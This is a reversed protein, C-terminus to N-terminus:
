RLYTTQLILQTNGKLGTVQINGTATFIRCIVPYLTGDSMKGIGTFTLDNKPKVDDPLKFITVGASVDGGSAVINVTVTNVCKKILCDREINWNNLLEEIKTTITTEYIPQKFKPEIKSTLDTTFRELQHFEINSLLNAQEVKLRIDNGVMTGKVYFTLLNDTITYVCEIGTNKPTLDEFGIVNGNGSNNAYVYYKKYALTQQGHYLNFVFTSNSYQPHGLKNTCISFIKAYKNETSTYKYTRVECSYNNM